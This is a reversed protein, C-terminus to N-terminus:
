GAEGDTGMLYGTVSHAPLLWNEAAARVDEATVADILDPWGEVDEVTLGVALASGYLRALGAVDDQAHILDTRTKRKIRDLEEETPGEAVLRAIEADLAAEVEALTHGPAPVGYITFATRDRASDNYFAGTSVAIRDAIEIQQSFRSTIGKGLVNALVSLAAATGPAEAEYTPVLYQRMVYPQRVRADRMELRRAALQPPEQPRADPPNNSPAISGYHTKALELVAEPNVDGAVVLIANDPAYYRRYFELAEPLGLEEIEHRWGIIPVGYPHNMYLAANMQERFLSGPDNDTRSNREELIVDRETAVLRENLVLNRMRDAEMGMVLGLRDAAIRQFYGTYDWSTFANDQGGNEAVVKSFAGEPIQHTGKFMLHEFFHAIGSHGAPEDAAGVRYWVMHTVVPARHDEIVVVEMGNDLRFTSVPQAATAVAPLLLAVLAVMRAIMGSHM